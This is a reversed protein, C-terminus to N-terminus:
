YRISKVERIMHEVTDMRVDAQIIHAPAMLYGGKTGMIAARRKVEAALAATDGSPLLVQQDIGGFFSIRGGYKATLDAPDSGPVNPQVPNYVDVGIEIFDEILPAVVGDSHM